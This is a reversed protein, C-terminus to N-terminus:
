IRQLKLVMRSKGASDPVNGGLIQLGRPAEPEAPDRRYSRHATLLVGTNRGEYFPEAVTFKGHGGIVTKEGSRGRTRGGAM